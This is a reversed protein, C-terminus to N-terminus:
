NYNINVENKYAELQCRLSDNEEKLNNLKETDDISIKTRKRQSPEDETDSVDMEGEGEMLAEELQVAKIEQEILYGFPNYQNSSQCQKEGNENYLSCAFWNIVLFLILILLFLFVICQIPYIGTNKNFNGKKNKSGALTKKKM